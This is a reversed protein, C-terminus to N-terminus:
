ASDGRGAAGGLRALQEELSEVARTLDALYAEPKALFAKHAAEHQRWEKECSQAARPGAAACPAPRAAAAAAATTLRRGQARHFRPAARCVKRASNSLEKGEADLTPLGEESFASFKGAYKDSRFLLAPPM